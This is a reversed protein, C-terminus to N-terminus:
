QDAGLGVLVLNILEAIASRDINQRSIVRMVVAGLLAEVAAHVPANERLEGAEIAEQFRSVLTARTKGTVQDEYRAAVVENEAAASATARLLASNDPKTTATAFDSMWATIDRRIDGSHAVPITPSLNGHLMGEAILASKTPYWRYITQKGVGATAAVRDISFKDYGREVLEDRTAELIALRSKESRARGPRGNAM